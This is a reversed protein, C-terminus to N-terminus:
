RRSCSRAASARPPSPRAACRLCCSSSRSDHPVPRPTRGPTPSAASRSAPAPVASSYACRIRAPSPRFQHRDARVAGHRRRERRRDPRARQVHRHDPGGADRRLGDARRRRRLLQGARRHWRRAARELRRHRHRQGAGAPDQRQAEGSGGARLAARRCAVPRREPDRLGGALAWLQAHRSRAAARRDGDRGDVRDAHLRSARPHESAAATRACPGATRPRRGARRAPPRRRTPRISRTSSRPRCARPPGDPPRCRTSPIPTPAPCAPSPSITAAAPHAPDPIGCNAGGPTNAYRRNDLFYKEMQMRFDGLKTTGDIIKSRLIYDNYSPLAIAALIGVIAVTIMMEILTFGAQRPASRFPPM